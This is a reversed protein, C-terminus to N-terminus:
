LDLEKKLLDIIKQQSTIVRRELEIGEKYSEILKDDICLLCMDPLHDNGRMHNLVLQELQDLTLQTDQM